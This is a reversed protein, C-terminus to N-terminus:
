IETQIQVLYKDTHMQGSIAVNGKEITSWAEKQKM